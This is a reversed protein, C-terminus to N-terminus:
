ATGPTLQAKSGRSDQARGRHGPARTYTVGSALESKWTLSHTLILTVSNLLEPAKPSPGRLKSGYDLPSSSVAKQKVIGNSKFVEDLRCLLSDQGRKPTKVLKMTRSGEWPSVLGDCTADASQSMQISGKEPLYDFVFCRYSNDDTFPLNHHKENSMKGVLYHASGEKWVALCSLEEVSSETGLVDACAQFRFLLRSDDTCTDINSLPYVCEGHGRNYTFTFPGRLQCPVPKADVAFLFNLFHLPNM